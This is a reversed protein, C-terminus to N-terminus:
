DILDALYRYHARGAGAAPAKGLWALLDRSTARAIAQIEPVAADDYSTRLLHEVVLVDVRQQIEGALGTLRQARITQEVVCNFLTGADAIAPDLSHQQQLRALRAPALMQVFVHEAAAEAMTVPDLAGAVRQPPSERTPGYGYAPPPILQLLKPDLALTQPAISGLLADIARQQTPGDIPKNVLPLTEGKVAYNFDVGGILRAVAETQYRQSYYLPVLVNALESWPTGARISAAGFRALSAKRVAMSHAFADLV